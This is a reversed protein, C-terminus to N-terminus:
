QNRYKFQDTETLYEKFHMKGNLKVITLTHGKALELAPRLFPQASMKSTGFEQYVGYELPTGVFVEFEDKPSQIYMESPSYEKKAREYTAEGKLINTTVKSSYKNHDEPDTGKGGYAQTTISAALYGYRKAALLKAQGEVVLGIEYASKGVVERGRVKVERGHWQTKVETKFNM